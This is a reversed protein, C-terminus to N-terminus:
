STQPLAAKGGRRLKRLKKDDAADLKQLCEVAAAEDGTLARKLLSDLLMHELRERNEEIRELPTKNKVGLQRGGYRAM